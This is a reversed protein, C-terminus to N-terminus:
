SQVSAGNERATTLAADRVRTCDGGTLRCAGDADLWPHGHGQCGTQCLVEAATTLPTAEAEAHGLMSQPPPGGMGWSWRTCALVARTREVILARELLRCQREAAEARALAQAEAQALATVQSSVRTQLSGLYRVLCLHESNAFEPARDIRM